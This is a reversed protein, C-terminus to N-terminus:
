SKNKLRYQNLRDIWEQKKDAALQSDRVAYHWVHMGEQGAVVRTIETQDPQGSCGEVSWSYVAENESNSVTMWKMSPCVAKLAGQMKQLFQDITVRTQLGEFLQLTVLESWNEMTQGEPAYVKVMAKKEQNYNESGLQWSREDFVAEVIEQARAFPALSVFFLFAFILNRRQM